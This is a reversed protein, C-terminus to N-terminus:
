SIRQIKILINSLLGVLVKHQRLAKIASSDLDSAIFCPVFPRVGTRNRVINLKTSPVLDDYTVSRNLCIDAVFFGPITKSATEDYRVIGNLFCPASYDM